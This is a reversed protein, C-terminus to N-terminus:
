SASLEACFRLTQANAPVDALYARHLTPDAFSDAIQMVRDRAERIAVRAEDSRGLAQLARARELRLISGDHHFGGRLAADLGQQSFALASEHRERLREITALAAFACAQAHSFMAGVDLTTRAEAGAEDLDGTAILAHALLARSLISMMPDFQAILRRLLAAAEAPQGANINSRAVHYAGWDSYSLGIPECFMTLERAANVTRDHAGSESLAHVMQLIAVVRGWADGTRDALLRAQGLREIAPGLDGSMLQLFARAVRLMLAFSPDVERAAAETAEPQAIFSVALPHQGMWSLGMCACVIALGYPGSPEPPVSVEMISQLVPATVSMDGLFVGGLFIGAVCLFWQTSGAPLLPMAERGTKVADAWEGRLALAQGQLMRLLGRDADSPGCEIGRHGLAIAGKTNGGDIATQVARLLWPVARAPEGGAEFHSAMTVADREGARELWHGALRHGRMRDTDTLMAYAAERLLGHRFTFEREKAFRSEVGAAFVERDALAQLAREVDEAHEEAGLLEVVGGRWFVEGFVSAARVIRRAEPELRELRLQALALVTEPVTDGGGESERRILEELYFANGDARTVLRTVVDAHVDAGLAARVLREAARATLRGLTVDQRDVNTWLGPFAEHVEPRALALVMLPKEALMRLAEGLYTISPLDGWHLDELVLLVPRATCEAALWDCFSRRLWEGMIRPDNRAARLQPSPADDNEAGVMEGLFQAIRTVEAEDCLGAVHARLRAYQRAPPDGQRLGAARRVLQRGIMLASGAGMPDARAVFVSVNGVDRAKREFEHRLRSKGQGAPGTVVVARSVSDGVCERLTGELLALEKDRGVCPTPKGLLTRPVDLDVRLGLLTHERGDTRVDFREGLLGVTVEDIRIGPSHLKELLAAAQDIVPGPAGAATTVARGTALAIRASPLAESLELACAAAIVVQESATGRGGLTVLLTGNALRALDGGHRRVVEGVREPEDPAAALMVSMMRQEGGSLREPPRMATTPVGGAVNGLARLEELVVSGDLPRQARDKSLMRAVLADLAEPLEPRLTRVRRAEERLVKALVAVVQNGTFVPEGILCEFLVCGLAFVDTRADLKREGIAQEPSMYGVTGMVVGTRTMPPATLPMDTLEMGVIGFDLLKARSPRGDVLLVNSPKVDRHVLGRAHAAALGAAARCAVDLSEAVTLRSVALRQALDQGHLWEMALYPQGQATEGHAVYRVIAPHDLEALVRAERAFREEHPGRRAVKLAVAEGTVRDLARYVAGMGGSGALREVVFRDSLVDGGKLRTPVYPEPPSSDTPVDRVVADPVSEPLGGPLAEPGASEMPRGRGSPDFTYEAMPGDCRYDGGSSLRLHAGPLAFRYSLPHLLPQRAPRARRSPPAILPVLLGIGRTVRRV